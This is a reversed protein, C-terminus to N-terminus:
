PRAFRTWASERAHSGHTFVNNGVFKGDLGYTGEPGEQTGASITLVPPVLTFNLSGDNLLSGVDTLEGVVQSTCLQHNPSRDRYMPPSISM